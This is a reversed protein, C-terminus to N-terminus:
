RIIGSEIVTLSRQGWKLTVVNKSTSYRSPRLSLTVIPCYSVIGLMHFPVINSPRSWIYYELSTACTQWCWSLKKHLKRHGQTVGLGPKLTVPYKFTSYRASPALTKLQVICLQLDSPARGFVHLFIPHRRQFNKQRFASSRTKCWQYFNLM